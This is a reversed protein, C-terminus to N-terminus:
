RFPPRLSALSRRANHSHYIAFPQGVPQKTAADLRQAWLRVYGDRLGSYGYVLTGDPSWYLMLGETGGMLSSEMIPTDAQFPAVYSHWSVNDLLALWRYDPSFRGPALWRGPLAAIERKRRSVLDFLM